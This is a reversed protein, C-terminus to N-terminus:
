LHGHEPEMQSPIPAEYTHVAMAVWAQHTVVAHSQWSSM